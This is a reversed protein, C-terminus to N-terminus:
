FIGKINLYQEILRNAYWKGDNNWEPHFQFGLANSEKWYIIYPIKGLKDLVKGSSHKVAQHHDCAVFVNNNTVRMGTVRPIHQHLTGGRHMINLFQFGRCVGIIPLGSEKAKHFMMACQSDREEDPSDTTSLPEEGYLFPSVDTGGGLYLFEKTTFDFDGLIM